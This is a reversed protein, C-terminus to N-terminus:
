AENIIYFRSQSHLQKEIESPKHQGRRHHSQPQPKTRLYAAGSAPRLTYREAQERHHQERHDRHRVIKLRRVIRGLHVAAHAASM